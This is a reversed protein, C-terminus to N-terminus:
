PGAHFGQGDKKSPSSKEQKETQPNFLFTEKLTAKMDGDNKEFVQVAKAASTIGQAVQTEIVKLYQIAEPEVKALGQKSIEILDLAIQQVTKNGVKTALGDKAVGDRLGIREDKTWEAVYEQAAKFADKDYFLGTWFAGVAMWHAPTPGLDAARFELLLNPKLLMEPKIGTMHDLLDKKTLYQEEAPLHALEPLPKGIMEYFSNPAVAIYADNRVIFSMPVSLTHAAWDKLGYGPEFLADPVKYLPSDLEQLKHRRWSAHDSDKGMSFPSNAFIAAAVPQILLGLKFADFADDKSPSDLTVQVSCSQGWASYGGEAEFVPKLAKFRSRESVYPCDDISLHPHFGYPLVDLGIKESAAKADTFYKGIDQELEGLTKRAASSFEIQGGPELTINGTENELATVKNNEVELAHWNGKKSLFNFIASISKPGSFGIPQLDKKNVFPMEVEIGIKKEKGDAYKGNLMSVAIDVIGDQTLIEKSGSQQSSMKTFELYLYTFTM